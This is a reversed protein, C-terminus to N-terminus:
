GGFVAPASKWRIFPVPLVMPGWWEAIHKPDTWAEWVLERPANLLRTIVIERATTDEPIQATLNNKHM